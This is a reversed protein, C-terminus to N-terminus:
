HVVDCIERAASCDMINVKVKLDCPLSDILPLANGFITVDCFGLFPTAVVGERKYWLPPKLTCGSTLVFM